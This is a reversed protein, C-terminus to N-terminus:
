LWNRAWRDFELFFRIDKGFYKTKARATRLYHEITRPSIELERASSKTCGTACVTTMVKLEIPTLGWPNEVPETTSVKTM